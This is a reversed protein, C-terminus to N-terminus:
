PPVHQYAPPDHMMSEVFELSRQRLIEEAMAYVDENTFRRRETATLIWRLHRVISLPLPSEVAINSLPKTPPKVRNRSRNRNRERKKERGKQGQYYDRSRRNLSERQREERCGFPCAIDERGKNCLASPFLIRCQKCRLVTFRGRFGRLLARLALFYVGALARV